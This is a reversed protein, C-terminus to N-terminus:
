DLYGLDRLREAVLRIDEDTYTIDAERKEVINISSYRLGKLSDRKLAESLVRGDLGIPVPMGLLHYITPAVDIIRAKKVRGYTIDPGKMILVGKGIHTGSWRTPTWREWGPKVEIAVGFGKRCQIFLDPSHSSGLYLENRKYVKDVPKLGGPLTMEKLGSAVEELLEYYERGPNVIGEPERGKLNVFLANSSGFSYVKTKSWEVGDLTPIPPFPGMVGLRWLAFRMMGMLNGKRGVRSRNKFLLYGNKILWDTIPITKYLPGFGHDSLILINTDNGELKSLEGIAWDVRRYVEYIAGRYISNEDYYPHTKDIYKWFFHQAPDPATFVVIFLDWNVREAIYRSVGTWMEVSYLLDKLLGKESRSDTPKLFGKGFRGALEEFLEPPFVRRNDQLQIPEGVIMIGNVYDLPFTAPLNLIAVMKGMESAVKWLPRIMRQTSFTPIIQYTDEQRTLFDFIGHRGPNVGTSFSTWAVPSLIPVTSELEGYYGEEMLRGMNPLKGEKVM